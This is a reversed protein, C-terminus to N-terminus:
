ETEGSALVNIKYLEAFCKTCCLSEEGPVDMTEFNIAKKANECLPLQRNKINTYAHYINRNESRPKLWIASAVRHKQKSMIM